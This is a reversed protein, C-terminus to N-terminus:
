LAFATFAGRTQKETCSSLHTALEDDEKLKKNPIMVVAGSAKGQLLDGRSYFVIPQGLYADMNEARKMEYVGFTDLQYKTSLEQATSCIGGYSENQNVELILGSGAFISIFLGISFVIISRYIDKRYLSILSCVGTISFLLSAIILFANDSYPISSVTRAIFLGPLAIAFLAYPIAVAVKTWRSQDKWPLIMMTYYAMFPVLPLLYVALKSSILSLMVFGAGAVCLMLKTTDTHRNYQATFPLIVQLLCWPATIYWICTLYYYFARKHHFANVGRGATQKFLLNNLYDDGGELYVMGFWLGCLLLLIGWTTGGWYRKWERMKKETILFVVSGALPILIGIPGKSFVALFIYVPFLYRDAPRACGKYLKYFTYLSLVIFMTMLMDMRAFILLGIFLGTTLLMYQSAKRGMRHQIDKTWKDMIGLTVIGPVFSLLSIYWMKHEGLLLKGCIMLWFYLPPKDAYYEGHNTFVFLHGERIAEDAISLYRLENSVSFDRLIFLPLLSILAILSPFLISDSYKKSIDM